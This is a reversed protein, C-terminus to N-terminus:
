WRRHGTWVDQAKCRGEHDGPQGTDERGELTLEEETELTQSKPFSTMDCREEAGARRAVEWERTPGTAQSAGWEREDGMEGQVGRGLGVLEMHGGLVGLQERQGSRGAGVTELTERGWM